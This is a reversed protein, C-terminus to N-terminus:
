WIMIYGDFLETRHGAWELRQIWNWQAPSPNGHFVRGCGWGSGYPLSELWRHAGNREAENQRHLAQETISMM